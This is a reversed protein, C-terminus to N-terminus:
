RARTGPLTGRACGCRSSALCAGVGASPRSFRRRALAAGVVGLAVLALSGPEPVVTVSDLAFGYSADVGALAAPVSVGIQVVGVNAFVTAFDTGEFSVFQPSQPDIEFSIQTWGAPGPLAVVPVFDVATAGPFNFPSAFRAFFNVPVPADHRVWASFETVGTLWNGAFAGGSASAPGRFLVPGQGGAVSNLFNFQTSVYGEGQQGGSALWPLTSPSANSADRWGANGSAFTETYAFTLAGADPAFWAVTLFVVFLPVFM